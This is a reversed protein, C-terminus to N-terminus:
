PLIVERYTGPHFPPWEGVGGPDRDNPGDVWLWAAEFRKLYRRGETADLWELVRVDAPPEPGDARFERPQRTEGHESLYSQYESMGEVYAVAESFGMDVHRRLERIAGAKNVSALEEVVRKRVDVPIGHPENVVRVSPRAVEVANAKDRAKAAPTGPVAGIVARGAVTENSLLQPGDWRFWVWPTDSHKDTTWRVAWNGIEAHEVGATADDATSVDRQTGVKDKSPDDARELVEVAYTPVCVVRGPGDKGDEVNVWVVYPNPAGSAVTTEFSVRVKDGVRPGDGDRTASM